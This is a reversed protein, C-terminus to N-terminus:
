QFFESPNEPTYDLQQQTPDPRGQPGVALSLRIEGLGDPQIRLEVARPMETPDTPTWDDRWSGDYSRYRLKVKSVGRMLTAPVSAKAGDLMPWGNRRLEGNELSYAVRQLTSRPSQDYNSWGARTFAFLEGPVAGGGVVFAPLPDGADNRSQRPVAQMMDASLAGATRNVISLEDLRHALVEQGTTSTRLLTLGAASLLAFIFLAVLLEILTFGDAPPGGSRARRATM